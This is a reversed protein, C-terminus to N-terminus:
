FFFIYFIGGVLIKGIIGLVVIATNRPPDYAIMIYGIGFLFVAAFFVTNLFLIYFNDTHFGYMLWAYFRPMLFAPIAMSFNWLGAIVFFTKWNSLNWEYPNLNEKTLRM